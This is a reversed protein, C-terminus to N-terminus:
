CLCRHGPPIRARLGLFGAAASNRSLGRPWRFRCIFYSLQQLRRVPWWTNIKCVNQGILSYFISQREESVNIDTTVYTRITLPQRFVKQLYCCHRTCWQQQVTTRMRTQICSGICKWTISMFSIIESSTQPWCNAMSIKVLRVDTFLLQQCM